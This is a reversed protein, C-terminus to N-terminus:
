FRLRFLDMPIILSFVLAWEWGKYQFLINVKVVCYIIHTRSAAAALKVESARGREWQKNWTKYYFAKYTTPIWYVWGAWVSSLFISLNHLIIMHNVINELIDEPDCYFSVDSNSIIPFVTVNRYYAKGCAYPLFPFIYSPSLIVLM